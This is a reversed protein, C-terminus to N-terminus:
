QANKWWTLMEIYAAEISRAFRRGDFLPSVARNGALIRRLEALRGPDGALQKALSEYADLSDVV